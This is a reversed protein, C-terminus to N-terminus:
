SVPTLMRRELALGRGGGLGLDLGAWGWGRGVRGVLFYFSMLCSVEAEGDAIILDDRIDHVGPDVTEIFQQQGNAKTVDKSALLAM